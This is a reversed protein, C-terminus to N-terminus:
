TFIHIGSHMILLTQLIELPLWHCVALSLLHCENLPEARAMWSTMARATTPARRNNASSLLCPSAAKRNLASTRAFISPNGSAEEQVIRISRDVLRLREFREFHMQTGFSGTSGAM